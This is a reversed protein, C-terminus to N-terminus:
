FEKSSSFWRWTKNIAEDLSCTQSVGLARSIHTLDPYFDDVKNLKERVMNLNIGCVSNTKESIMVALDYNSIPIAGGLNYVAGDMGELLAVLIWWAADSGYLYSRRAMPDGNIRINRNSLIDNLFSNIVWPRDLSQYPGLFTFPRVTSIPMRFQSRYISAITEALRKSDVYVLHLQGSPILFGESEMIPGERNPIGCVLGSSINVLRILKTLQSAAYLVNEVGDVITQVVRLPESAHIRNNPIGAAHVVYNVSQNFEFPSRVDHSYLNIYSCHSLHLYKKKWISTDRAYLDLIIELNYQDNLASVMEAIWTGLFGTGGTVAIRKSKLKKIVNSHNASAKLCDQRNELLYSAFINEKKM